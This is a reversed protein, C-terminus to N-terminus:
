GRECSIGFDKCARAFDETAKAEQFWFRSGVEAREIWWDGKNVKALKTAERRLLDLQRGAARVVLCNGNQM